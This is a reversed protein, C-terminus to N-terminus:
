EYFTIELLIAKIFFLNLTIHRKATAMTITTLRPKVMAM